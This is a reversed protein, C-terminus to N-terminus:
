EVFLTTLRAKSISEVSPVLALMDDLPINLRRLLTMLRSKLALHRQEALPAGLFGPTKTMLFSLEDAANIVLTVKAAKQGHERVEVGESFHHYRNVVALLEPFNWNRCALWGLFSHDFGCIETEARILDNASQWHSEDIKAAQEPSEALMIFRGLDHLLGALYLEDGSLMRDALKQGLYRSTFAVQLCHLLLDEVHGRDLMAAKKVLLKNLSDAVRDTGVRAMVMPLTIVEDRTANFSHNALYM